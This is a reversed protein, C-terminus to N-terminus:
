QKRGITASRTSEVAGCVVGNGGIGAMGLISGGQVLAKEHDNERNSRKRQFTCGGV